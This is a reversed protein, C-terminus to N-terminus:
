HGRRAGALRPILGVARHSARFLVALAWFLAAWAGPQSTSCGCGGSAHSPGDGGTGADTRGGADVGGADERTGADLIIGGADGGLVEITVLSGGLGAVGSCLLHFSTTAALPGVSQTGSTALTGTWGGSASCATANVASWTLESTGGASVSAPNATLQVSPPPTGADNTLRYVFVDEDVANVVVFLNLGPSYRFRGNTGNSAAATPIVTNTTAPPVQTWAWTAPDLTWVDAGGQWAVFLQSVPDYEFGPAGSGVITQDGTTTLPVGIIDGADSLDFTFAQTSGVAVLLRREPEIAATLYYDYYNNQDTWTSGHATWADGIPDFEALSTLGGCGHAWAHGTTPDV